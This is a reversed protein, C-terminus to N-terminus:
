PNKEKKKKKIKKKRTEKPIHELELLEENTLEEPIVEPLEETNDEDVCLNFNNVMEVVAKIIKIVKKDKAFRKFDHILRKLTKKWSGNM